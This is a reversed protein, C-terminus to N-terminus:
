RLKEPDPFAALIKEVLVSALRVASEKTWGAIHPTLIVADSGRLYGLVEADEKVM